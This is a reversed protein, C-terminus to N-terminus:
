RGHLEIRGVTHRMIGTDSFLGVVKKFIHVISICGQWIIIFCQGEIVILCRNGIYGVFKFIVKEQPAFGDKFILRLQVQSELMIHIPYLLALYVRQAIVSVASRVWFRMFLQRIACYKVSEVLITHYFTLQAIFKRVPEIETQSGILDDKPM